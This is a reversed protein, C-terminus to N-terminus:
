KLFGGYIFQRRSRSLAKQAASEARPELGLLDCTAVGFLPLHHVYTSIHFGDLHNWTGNTLWLYPQSPENGNVWHLKTDPFMQSCWRVLHHTLKWCAMNTAPHYEPHKAPYSTAATGKWCTELMPFRAGEWSPKTQFFSNRGWKYMVM